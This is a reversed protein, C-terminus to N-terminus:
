DEVELAAETVQKPGVKVGQRRLKARAGAIMREAADVAAPSDLAELPDVGGKKFEHIIRKVPEGEMHALVLALTQVRVRFDPEVELHGTGGAGAWFSRTAQLGGRAAEVMAPLFEPDALLAEALKAGVGSGAGPALTLTSESQGIKADMYSDKRMHEPM